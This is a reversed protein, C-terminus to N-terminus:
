YGEGEEGALCKFTVEGGLGDISGDKDEVRTSSLQEELNNM